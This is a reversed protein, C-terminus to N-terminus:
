APAMWVPSDINTMPAATRCTLGSMRQLRLNEPRQVVAVRPRKRRPQALSRKKPKYPESRPLAEGDVSSNVMVNNRKRCALETGGAGMKPIRFATLNLFM